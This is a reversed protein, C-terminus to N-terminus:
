QGQMPLCLLSADRFVTNCTTTIATTSPFEGILEGRLGGAPLATLLNTDGVNLLTRCHLYGGLVPNSGSDINLLPTETTTTFNSKLECRLCCVSLSGFWNTEGVNLLPSLYINGRSVPNSGSDINELLM